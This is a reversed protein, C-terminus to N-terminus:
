QDDEPVTPTDLLELVERMTEPHVFFKTTKEVIPAVCRVCRVESAEGSVLMRRSAPSVWVAEGCEACPSKSAGPVAEPADAVRVSMLIKPEDTM